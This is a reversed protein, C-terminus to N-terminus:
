VVRKIVINTGVFVAKRAALDAAAAPWVLAQDNFCGGLYYQVTKGAAYDLLAVGVAKNKGDTGAPDYKYVKGDTGRAIVRYREIAEGALEGGDTVVNPTDGAFLHTYSVSGLIESGALLDPKDSM